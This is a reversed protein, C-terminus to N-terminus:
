PVQREIDRGRRCLDMLADLTVPAGVGAAGFFLRRSEELLSEIPARLPRLPPRVRFLEEVNSPLLTFGAALDLARHVIRFAERQRGEDWGDGRLRRLERLAHAFPRARRARWPVGLHLWTLAALVAILAVSLAALRWLDPALELLPPPREPRLNFRAASGRQDAPVIPTATFSWEPIFVPLRREAGTVELTERPVVLESPAAPVNILQYTLEIEVQHGRRRLVPRHLELWQDLRGAAPLSHEDFRYGGGLELRVTHTITDGIVYGDARPTIVEMQLVGDDARVTTTMAVIASAWVRWDFCVSM